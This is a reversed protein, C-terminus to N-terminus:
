FYVGSLLALGMLHHSFFQVSDTLLVKGPNQSYSASINRQVALVCQSTCCRPWNDESGPFFQKSLSQIGIM